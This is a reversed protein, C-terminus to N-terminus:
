RHSLRKEVRGGVVIAATSLVLSAGYFWLLRADYLMAGAAISLVFQVGALILVDRLDPRESIRATIWGGVASFVATFAMTALLVGPKDSFGNAEFSSPTIQRLVVDGLTTLVGIAAVGALVGLISRKM